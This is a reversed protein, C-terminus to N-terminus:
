LENKLKQKVRFHFNESNSGSLQTKKLSKLDQWCVLRPSVVYHKNHSTIHCQYIRSPFFNRNKRTSCRTTLRILVPEASAATQEAPVRLMRYSIPRQEEVKIAGNTVTSSIGFINEDSSAADIPAPPTRNRTTERHKGHKRRTTMIIRTPWSHWTTQEYEDPLIKSIM